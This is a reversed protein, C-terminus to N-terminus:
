GIRATQQQKLSSKHRIMLRKDLQEQFEVRYRLAMKDM